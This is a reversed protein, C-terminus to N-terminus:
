DSFPLPPQKQKIRLLQEDAFHIYTELRQDEDLNAIFLKKMSQLCKKYTRLSIKDQQLLLQPVIIWNRERPPYSLNRTSGSQRPHRRFYSMIEHTYAVKNDLLCSVWISMDFHTPVEQGLVTLLGSDENWELCDKNFLVTTMEGIFNHTREFMRKICANGRLITAEELPLGDPIDGFNNDRDIEQRRSYSITVSSDQLMPKLLKEISFPHLIDDDCLM